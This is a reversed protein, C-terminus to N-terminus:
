NENECVALTGHLICFYVMKCSYRSFCYCLLLHPSWLLTWLENHNVVLISLFSLSSFFVFLSIGLLLIFMMQSMNNCHAFSHLICHPFAHILLFDFVFKHPGDVIFNQICCFFHLLPAGTRKELWTARNMILFCLLVNFMQEKRTIKTPSSPFRESALEYLNFKHAFPLPFYTGVKTHSYNLFSCSSDKSLHLLLM